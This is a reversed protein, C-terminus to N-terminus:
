KLESKKSQPQPNSRGRTSLASFSYNLNDDQHPHNITRVLPSIPRFNEELDANKTRNIRLQLNSFSQRKVLFNEDRDKSALPPKTVITQPRSTM